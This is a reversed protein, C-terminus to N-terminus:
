IEMSVKRWKIDIQQQDDGGPGLNWGANLRGKLRENRWGRLTRWRLQVPAAAPSWRWWRPSRLLVGTVILRQPAKVTALRGTGAGAPNLETDSPVLAAHTTSGHHRRRGSRTPWRRRLGEQVAGKTGAYPCLGTGARREGV